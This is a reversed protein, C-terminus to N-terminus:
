LTLLLLLEIGYFPYLKQPYRLVEVACAPSNTSIVESLFYSKRVIQLLILDLEHNKYENGLM